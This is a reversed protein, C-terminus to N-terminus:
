AETANVLQRYIRQAKHRRASDSLDEAFGIDALAGIAIQLLKKLREIEATPSTDPM